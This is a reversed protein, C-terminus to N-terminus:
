AGYAAGLAAAVRRGAVDIDSPPPPTAASAESAVCLPIMWALLAARYATLATLATDAAARPVGELTSGALGLLAIRLRLHPDRNSPRALGDIARCETERLDRRLRRPANPGGAIRSESPHWPFALEDLASQQVRYEMTKGLRSVVLARGLSQGDTQLFSAYGTTDTGSETENCALSSIMVYHAIIGPHEAAFLRGLLAVDNQRLTRFRSMRLEVPAAALPPKKSAPAAATTQPAPPPPQPQPQPEPEPAVFGPVIPLEVEAERADHEEEAIEYFPREASVAPSTVCGRKISLGPAGVVPVGKAILRPQLYLPNLGTLVQLQFIVKSSTGGPLRGIPLGQGFLREPALAERGDVRLTATRFEAEIPLSIMLTSEPAPATGDNFVDIAVGILAGAIVGTQPAAGVAVRLRPMNAQTPHHADSATMDSGVFETVHRLASGTRGSDSHRLELLRMDANRDFLDDIPHHEM